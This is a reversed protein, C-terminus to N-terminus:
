VLTLQTIYYNNQAYLNCISEKMKLHEGHNVTDNVEPLQVFVVDGLAEQAYSSIGVTGVRTEADVVVWEHKPTFLRDVLLSARFTTM